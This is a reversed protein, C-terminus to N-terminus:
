AELAMAVTMETWIQSIHSRPKFTMCSNNSSRSAAFVAKRESLGGSAGFSCTMRSGSLKRVQLSFLKVSKDLFVLM